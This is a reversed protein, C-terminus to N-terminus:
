ELSKCKVGLSEFPCHKESEYKMNKKKSGRSINLVGAYGQKLMTEPLNFEIIKKYSPYVQILIYIPDTAHARGLIMVPSRHLLNKLAKDWEKAPPCKVAEKAYVLITTKEDYSKGQSLKTRLLFDVLSEGSSHEYTVMEVDQMTCDPARDEEQEYCTMTRADPSGEADSVPQIWYQRKEVEQIGVIATAVACLEETKRAIKSTDGLSIDSRYHLIANSLAYWRSDTMIAKMEKAM